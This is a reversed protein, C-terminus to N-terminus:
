NRSKTRQGREGTAKREPDGSGDSRKAQSQREFFEARPEDGQGNDKEPNFTSFIIRPAIERNQRKPASGAL